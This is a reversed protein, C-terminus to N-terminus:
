RSKVTSIKSTGSNIMSVVKSWDNDDAAWEIDTPHHKMQWNSIASGMGDIKFDGESNKKLRIHHKNDCMCSITEFIVERPNEKINIKPPNNKLEDYKSM